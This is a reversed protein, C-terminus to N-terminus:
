GQAEWLTRLIMEANVGNVFLEVSNQGRIMREAQYVDSHSCLVSCIVLYDCDARRVNGTMNIFSKFGWDEFTKTLSKSRDGGIMVIRKDKLADIMEELSVEITEVDDSLDAVGQETLRAQLQKITKASKGLEQKLRLRENFLTDNESREDRLDSELESIRTVLEDHTNHRAIEARLQAIQERLGQNEAKMDKFRESLKSYRQKARTESELARNKMSTARDLDLVLKDYAGSHLYAYAVLQNLSEEACNMLFDCEERGLSWQEKTMPSGDYCGKSLNSYAERIAVTSGDELEYGDYARILEDLSIEGKIYKFHLSNEPCLRDLLGEFDHRKLNINIQKRLATDLNCMWWVILYLCFAQTNCIDLYSYRIYPFEGWIISFNLARAACQFFLRTTDRPNKDFMLAWLERRGRVGSLLAEFLKINILSNKQLDQLYVNKRIPLEKAVYNILWEYCLNDFYCAGNLMFPLANFRYGRFEVTFLEELDWSPLTKLVRNLTDQFMKLNVQKCNNATQAHLRYRGKM